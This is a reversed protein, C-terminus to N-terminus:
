FNGQIHESNLFKIYSLIESGVMIYWHEEMKKVTGIIEEKRHPKIKNREM